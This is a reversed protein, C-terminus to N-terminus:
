EEIEEYDVFEDPEQEEIQDKDQTTLMKPVFLRYSFYVLVLIFLLKIM